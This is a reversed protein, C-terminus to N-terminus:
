FGQRALQAQLERQFAQVDAPSPQYGKQPTELMLRGMQDLAWKGSVGDSFTVSGSVMFGPRVIRDLDV